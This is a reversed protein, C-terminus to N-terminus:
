VRRGHGGIAIEPEFPTERPRRKRLSTRERRPFKGETVYRSLTCTRVPAKTIVALVRRWNVPGEVLNKQGKKARSGQVVRFAEM